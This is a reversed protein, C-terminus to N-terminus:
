MPWKRLLAFWFIATLLRVTAHRHLHPPRSREETMMMNAAGHVGSEVDKNAKGTKTLVPWEEL